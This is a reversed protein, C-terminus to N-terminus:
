EVSGSDDDGPGCADAAAPSGVPSGEVRSGDLSFDSAERRKLAFRLELVGFVVLLAFTALQWQAFDGFSVGGETVSVDLRDVLPSSAITDVRLRYSGPPLHGITVSAERTGELEGDEDRLSTSAARVSDVPVDRSDLVDIVYDIYSEPPPSGRLEITVRRSGRLEFAGSAVVVGESATPAAVAGAPLLLQESLVKQPLRALALSAFLALSVLFTRWWVRGVGKYPNPEAIGVGEKPVLPTKAFYAAVQSRDLHEGRSWNIESADGECSLVKPACVYDFAESVEGVRVRWPFEGAVADVTAHDHAFLTYTVGEHAIERQEETPM